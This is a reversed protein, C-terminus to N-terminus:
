QTGSRVIADGLVKPECEFSLLIRTGEGLESEVKLDGGILAAREQMISMGFHDDLTEGGEVESFGEGDDEILVRYAQEHRSLLVRVNDAHSHKRINALSEQVIRLVHVESEDPLEIEDWQNQFFTNTRTEKRFRSVAAGIAPILGRRHVPARFHRILERLEWNAEELSSEVREMEAWVASEDGQHLSDDLVRVQFRLSALTQALSDHLENALNAREQMRPLLNAEYDLRAKEVALGLQRGISALLEHMEGSPDLRGREAFL